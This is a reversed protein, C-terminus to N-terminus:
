ETRQFEVWEIVAMEAVDGRRPELKVIRTYGGHRSRFAPAVKDFLIHVVDCNEKWKLRTIKGPSRKTGPFFTRAQQRLKAAAMRRYHVNRSAQVAKEQADISPLLSRHLSEQGQKGLTVLKEAVPRLAKAKALTTCVKSNLILSCALNALLANRHASTRGLKHIRKLHPM